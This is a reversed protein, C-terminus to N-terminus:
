EDFFKIALVVRDINRLSNARHLITGDFIILRGPKPFIGRIEENVLFDTSGLDNYETTPNFYFLCTYSKNEGAKQDTPTDTHWNPAIANLPPYIHAHNCYNKMKALQPEREFLINNFLNFEPPLPNDFECTISDTPDDPGDWGSRGNERSDELIIDRFMLNTDYDVVNDYVKIM